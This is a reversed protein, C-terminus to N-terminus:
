SLIVRNIGLKYDSKSIINKLLQYHESNKVFDIQSIDVMLVPFTDVQKLHSIYGEQVKRLYGATIGQEYDRGRMKINELLRPTEAHLFVYLDPNPIGDSVIDYIQRFLQYEDSNLTHRAFVATKSFHYDAVLQPRSLDPSMMEQKVQTHRNALFSLELPFAYRDKDKYFKPLFPNDDFQETIFKANLDQALMKALTTKGVGINGEIVLFRM